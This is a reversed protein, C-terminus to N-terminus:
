VREDKKQDIQQKEKKNKEEEEEKKRKEEVEVRLLEKIVDSKRVVKFKPFEFKM